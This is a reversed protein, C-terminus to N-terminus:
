ATRRDPYTEFVNGYFTCATFATDLGFQLGVKPLTSFQGDPMVLYSLQLRGQEDAEVVQKLRMTAGDPSSLQMLMQVEAEGTTIGVVSAKLQDLGQWARAGRVDM